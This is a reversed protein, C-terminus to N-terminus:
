PPFYLHTHPIPGLCIYPVRKCTHSQLFVFFLIPRTPPPPPPPSSSPPHHTELVWIAENAPCDAILAGHWMVQIHRNCKEVIPPRPLAQVNLHPRQNVGGTAMAGTQSRTIRSDDDDRQTKSISPLPGTEVESTAAPYFSQLQLKRSPNSHSFHPLEQPNPTKQNGRTHTTRTSSPFPLPPFAEQYMSLQDNFPFAARPFSFFFTTVTRRAKRGEFRSFLFAWVWV